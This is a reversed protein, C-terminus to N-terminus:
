PPQSKGDALKQRDIVWQAIRDYYGHVAPDHAQALHLITGGGEYYSMSASDRIGNATFAKLYGDFRPAYVATQSILRDDFEMELGMGNDRAFQCANQLHAEPLQPHFFYNPQQSALDFGLTKWDAGARAHWFPIWFFKFGQEHLKQAVVPLMRQNGPSASEPVFYFGTLVLHKPALAHWRAVAKAIHWECAAARDALNSFNLERGALEGWNTCNEVPEPLTLIVQRPRLPRGIRKETEACCEEFAPVGHGPEFNRDILRLWNGKDAPVWKGNGEGGSFTRKQDRFEIFLFGDFLWKERGDRPDIYSVYPGFQDPTWPLRGSGGQYILVTDTANPPNKQWLPFYGGALADPKLWCAIFLVALM